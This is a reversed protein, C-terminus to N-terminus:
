EARFNDEYDALMTTDVWAGKIFEWGKPLTMAQYEKSTKKDAKRDHYIYLWGGVRKWSVCFGAAVLKKMANNVRRLHNAKLTHNGAYQIVAGGKSYMPGKPEDATEHTAPAKKEAKKPTPKAAKKSPKATAISESVGLLARLDELEATVSYGNIEITKKM